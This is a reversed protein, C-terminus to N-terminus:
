PRMGDTFPTKALVKQPAADDGTAEILAKELERLYDQCSVPGARHRGSVGPRDRWVHVGDVGTCM